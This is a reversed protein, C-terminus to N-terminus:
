INNQLFYFVEFYENFNVPININLEIDAIKANTFDVIIGDKKLLNTLKLLTAQLDQISSNEVNNRRLIRNPNFTLKNFCTKSLRRDTETLTYNYTMSFLERKINAVEKFGNAREVM